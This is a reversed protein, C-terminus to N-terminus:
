INEHESSDTSFIIRNENNEEEKDEEEEDKNIKKLKKLREEIRLIHQYKSKQQDLPIQCAFDYYSFNQIPLNITFVPTTISSTRTMTSTLSNSLSETNMNMNTTTSPLIPLTDTTPIEMISDISRKGLINNYLLSTSLRAISANTVPPTTQSSLSLSSPLPQSNNNEQNDQSLIVSSSSQIDSNSNSPTKIEANNLPSPINNNSLEILSERPVMNSEANSLSPISSKLQTDYHNIVYNSTSNISNTTHDNHHYTNLFAQLLINYKEKRIPINESISSSSSSSTTCTSSSELVVHSNALSQLQYITSSNNSTNTLNIDSQPVPLPLPISSSSSSATTLTAYLLHSAPYSHPIPSFDSISPLPRVPPNNETTNMFQLQDEETMSGGWGSVHKSPTNNREEELINTPISYNGGIRPSIYQHSNNKDVTTATHQINNIVHPYNYLHNSTTDTYLVINKNSPIHFIGEYADVDYKRNPIQTHEEYQSTM